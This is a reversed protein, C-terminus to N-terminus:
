KFSVNRYLLQSNPRKDMDDPSKPGAILRISKTIGHSEKQGLFGEGGRGGAGDAMHGSVPAGAITSGDGQEGGQCPESDSAVERPAPAM